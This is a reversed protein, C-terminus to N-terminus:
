CLCKITATFRWRPMCMTSIICTNHVRICMNRALSPQQCITILRIVTDVITSKGIGNQGVIASVSINLWKDTRSYLYENSDFANEEVTIKEIDGNKSEIIKFGKNFYFWETRGYLSKQICKAKRVDGMCTGEYLYFRVGILKLGRSPMVMNRNNDMEFEIPKMWYRNSMEDM